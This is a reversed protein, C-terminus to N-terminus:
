RVVTPGTPQLIYKKILKSKDSSSLTPRKKESKKISTVNLKDSQGGKTNVISTSKTKMSAQDAAKVRNAKWQPLKSMSDKPIM